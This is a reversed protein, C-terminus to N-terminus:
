CVYINEIFIRKFLHYDAVYQMLRKERNDLKEWEIIQAKNKMVIKLRKVFIM